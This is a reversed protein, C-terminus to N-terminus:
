LEKSSLTNCATQPEHNLHQTQAQKCQPWPFCRTVILQLDDKVIGWFPLSPFAICDSPSVPLPVVAACRSRGSHSIHQLVYYMIRHESRSGRCPAFSARGM